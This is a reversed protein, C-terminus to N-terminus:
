NSWGEGTIFARVAAEPSEADTWDAGAGWAIGARQNAPVWVMEGVEPHVAGAEDRFSIQYCVVDTNARTLAEIEKRLDLAGVEYPQIEVLLGMRIDVGRNRM